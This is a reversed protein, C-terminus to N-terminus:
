SFTRLAAISSRYLCEFELQLRALECPLRMIIKGSSWGRRERRASNTSVTCIVGVGRVYVCSCWKGLATGQAVSGHLGVAQTYQCCSFKHCFLGNVITRLCCVSRVCHIVDRCNLPFM